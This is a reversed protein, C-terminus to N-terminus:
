PIKGILSQVMEQMAPLNKGVSGRPFCADRQSYDLKGM